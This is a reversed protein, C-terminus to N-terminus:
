KIIQLFEVKDDSELVKNNLRLSQCRMTLVDSESVKNDLRLSQCRM